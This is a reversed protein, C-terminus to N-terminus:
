RSQLPSSTNILFRMSKSKGLGPSTSDNLFSWLDDMDM